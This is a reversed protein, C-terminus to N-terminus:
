AHQAVWCPSTPSHRGGQWPSGSQLKWTKWPTQLAAVPAHRGGAEPELLLEPETDVAEVPDLPEVLVEAREVDEVPPAEVELPCEAVELPPELLACRLEEADPEAPVVVPERVLPVEPPEVALETLLELVVVAARVWPVDADAVLM